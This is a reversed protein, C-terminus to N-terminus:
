SWMLSIKLYVVLFYRSLLLKLLLGGQNVSVAGQGRFGGSHAGKLWGITMIDIQCMECKFHLPSPLAIACMVIPNCIKSFTPKIGLVYTPSPTKQGSQSQDFALSLPWFIHYM